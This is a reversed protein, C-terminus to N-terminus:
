MDEMEDLVKEIVWQSLDETLFTNDVVLFPDAQLSSVWNNYLQSILYNRDEESIERDDDRDVVKVLWYGGKSWFKDDRLPESWVGVEVEPDFVYSDFVVGHEGLEGPIM